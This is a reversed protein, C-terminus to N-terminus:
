GRCSRDHVGIEPKRRDIDRRDTRVAGARRGGVRSMPRAAAPRAPENLEPFFVSAAARRLRHVPSANVAEAM